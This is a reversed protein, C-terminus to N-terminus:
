AAEAAVAALRKCELDVYSRARRGFLLGIVGALWGSQELELTLRSGGGPEAMVVHRGLTRVGPQQNVWSFAAGEVCETM